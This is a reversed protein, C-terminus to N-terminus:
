KEEEIKDTIVTDKDPTEETINLNMINKDVLGNELLYALASSVDREEEKKGNKHERIYRELIQVALEANMNRGKTNLIVFGKIASAIGLCLLLVCFDNLIDLMFDNYILLRFTAQLIFILILSINFLNLYDEASFYRPKQKNKLSLIAM